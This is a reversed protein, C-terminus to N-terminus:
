DRIEELIPLMNQRSINCLWKEEEAGLENSNLIRGRNNIAVIGKVVNAQVPKLEPRERSLSRMLIQPDEPLPEDSLETILSEGDGLNWCLIRLQWVIKWGINTEQM